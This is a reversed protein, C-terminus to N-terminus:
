VDLVYQTQLPKFGHHTLFKEVGNDINLIRGMLMRSAGCEKAWDKAVIFLKVGATGRNDPHVFWFSEDAIVKGDFLSATLTMGITGIIKGDKRCVWMAAQGHALFGNWFDCFTNGRFDGTLGTLSYFHKGLEVIQELDEPMLQRIREIM